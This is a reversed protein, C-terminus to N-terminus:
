DYKNSYNFIQNYKIMIEPIDEETIKKINALQIDKPIKIDYAKIINNFHKLTYQILNLLIKNCNNVVCKDLKVQKENSYIDRIVKNREDDNNYYQFILSKKNKLEEDNNVDNYLNKCNKKSCKSYDDWHKFIIFLKEMVKLEIIKEFYYFLIIFDIYEEDNLSHKSFLKIFNDYKIQIDNSFKIEFIKIKKILSNIKLEQYNKIISCKKFACLEFDKQNKNSYIDFIIKDIEKLDKMKALKKKLVKLKKDNSIKEYEDKCKEKYCNIYEQIVKLLDM